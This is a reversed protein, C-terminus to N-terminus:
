GLDFLLFAAGKETHFNNEAMASRSRMIEMRENGLGPSAREGGM